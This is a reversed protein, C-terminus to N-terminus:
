QQLLNRNKPNLADYFDVAGYDIIKIVGDKTKGFANPKKDNFWFPIGKAPIETAGIPGDFRKMMLFKASHSISICPAFMDILEPNAENGSIKEGMKILAHWITWEVFNSHHFPGKSEKIVVDDKGEVAYVRRQTGEGLPRMRDIASEFEHDPRIGILQRTM